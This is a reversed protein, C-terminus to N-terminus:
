TASPETHTVTVPVSPPTEPHAPDPQPNLEIDDLAESNADPKDSDDNEFCDALEDTDFPWLANGGSFSPIVLANLFAQLREVERSTLDIPLVLKAIRDEDLPFHHKLFVTDGDDSIHKMDPREPTADFDRFLNQSGM